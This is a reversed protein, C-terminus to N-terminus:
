PGADAAATGSDAPGGSCAGGMCVGVGCNVCPNGGSGCANDLDGAACQGAQCCGFMCTAPSCAGLGGDESSASADPEGSGGTSADGGGSSSTGSCLNAITVPVAAETAAAGIVYSRLKSCPQGCLRVRDTGDYSWGNPPDASAEAAATCGPVPPVITTTTPGPPAGPLTFTIQVNGAPTGSAVDPPLQYLCTGLETISQLFNGVDTQAGTSLMGSTSSNLMTADLTTIAQPVDMAAQEFFEIPEMGSASSADDNDLVVFYTRLGYVSLNNQAETEINTLTEAPPCACSNAAGCMVSSNSDVADCSPTFAPDMSSATVTLPPTCDQAEPPTGPGAVPARNVIFMVGAINPSSIQSQMLFSQVAQYAGVGSAAGQMAGQLDLPYPNYCLSQYCYPANLPCGNQLPAPGTGTGQGTCAGTGVESPAWASLKSAIQPQAEGALNFALDPMLYTSPPTTACDTQSPDNLFKFAAFTQKFVPDTLSLALAQASGAAGYAGHMYVSQDMVLYMASPAPDMPIAVNCTGTTPGGDPLVGSNNREKACIPLLLEKPGCLSAVQVDSITHYTLSGTAPPPPPTTAAKALACLGPALQIFTGKSNFVPGADVGPFTPGAEPLTTTSPNLVTFGEIPDENLIEEEGAEALVQEYGGAPNPQWTIDKYYIRVNAGSGALPSDYSPFGYICKDPDLLAAPVADGFCQMPSFCLGLGDYLSPDYDALTSSVPPTQNICEGGQCSYTPGMMSCDVDQCSYTLPMPLFLVHGPVYSQVSRRIIRPNGTAANAATPQAVPAAGMAGVSDDTGPCNMIDQGTSGQVDYGRITITVISNAAQAPLVGLTSPLQVIGTQDVPYLQCFKIVGDVELDLRIADLDKTVVMQSSVGPVIETPQTGKCGTGIAAGAAGIAIAGWALAKAGLRRM